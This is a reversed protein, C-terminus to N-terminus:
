WIKNDNGLAKVALGLNKKREYRNISLFITSADPMLDSTPPEVPKSFASFDPIPYLVDPEVHGLSKFTDHFVGASFVCSLFELIFAIPIPVCTYRFLEQFRFSYSM